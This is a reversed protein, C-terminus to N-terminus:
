LRSFCNWVVADVTWPLSKLCTLATMDDAGQLGFPMFVISGTASDIYWM